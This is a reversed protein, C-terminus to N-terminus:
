TNDSTSSSLKNRLKQWYDPTVPESRGSDLGIQIEQALWEMESASQPGGDPPVFRKLFTPLFEPEGWHYTYQEGQTFLLHMAEEDELSMLVTYLKNVVQKMLKKMEAQTIRSADNWPIERDPTVVKVDCCDGSRSIVQQGAHLDELFTHRVCCVALAKALRATYEKQANKNM